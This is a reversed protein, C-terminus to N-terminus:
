HGAGRPMVGGEAMVRALLAADINGGSFRRWGRARPLCNEQRFRCAAVAAAGPEAVLHAEQGLRRVAALSEEDTVTVVGTVYTLM